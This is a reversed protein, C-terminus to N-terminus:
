TIKIDQSLYFRVHQTFAIVDQCTECKDRRRLKNLLNFLVIASIYSGM